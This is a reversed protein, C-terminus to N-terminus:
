GVIETEIRYVRRSTRIVKPRIDSQLYNETFESILGKNHCTQNFIFLELESKIVVWLVVWIQIGLALRLWRRARCTSGSVTYLFCQVPAQRCRCQGPSTCSNSGGLSWWNRESIPTTFKDGLMPNHNKNRKYLFVNGSFIFYITIDGPPCPQCEVPYQKMWIQCGVLRAKNGNWWEIVRYNCVYPVM